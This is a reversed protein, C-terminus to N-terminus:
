PACRATVGMYAGLVPNSIRVALVNDGPHLLATFDLPPVIEGEACAADNNVCGEQQWDGGWHGVAAGNVWVWLGDDSQLDLYVTPGTANLTLLTRYVRDNGPPVHGQDPLAVTSWGAVDFAVGHFPRNQSDVPDPATAFPQSGWWQATTLGQAACDVLDERDPPDVVDTDDTDDPSDSDSDTEIATEDEPDPSDEPERDGQIGYDSCASLLLWPVLRPM